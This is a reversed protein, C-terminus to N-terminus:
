LLFVLFIFPLATLLDPSFPNSGKVEPKPSWQEVMSVIGRECPRRRTKILLWFIFFCGCKRKQAKPRERKLFLFVLYFFSFLLFVLFVKKKWQEVM